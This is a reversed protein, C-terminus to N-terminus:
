AGVITADGRPAVLLVRLLEPVLPRLDQLRNSKARLVVVAIDHGRLNQQFRLSQDLTILAAFKGAAVRLLDGNALDSWGEQHITRAEHGALLPALDRPLNGDLLVRL